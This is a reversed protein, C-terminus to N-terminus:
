EDPKDPLFMWHTPNCKDSTGDRYGRSPLSLEWSNFSPSNEYYMSTIKGDSFVLIDRGDKPATEISKWKM